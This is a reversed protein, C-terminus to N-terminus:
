SEEKNKKSGSRSSKRSNSSLEEEIKEIKNIIRKLQGELVYLTESTSDLKKNLYHGILIIPAIIFIIHFLYGPNNGGACSTLMLASGAIILNIMNM